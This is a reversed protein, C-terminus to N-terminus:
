KEKSIGLSQNIDVNSTNNLIKIVLELSDIKNTLTKIEIKKEAIFLSEIQKGSFFSAIFFLTLLVVLFSTKTNNNLTM